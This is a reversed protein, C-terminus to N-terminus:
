QQLQRYCGIDPLTELANGHNSGPSLLRCMVWGDLRRCVVCAFRELCHYSHWWCWPKAYTLRHGDLRADADSGVGIFTEWGLALRGTGPKKYPSGGVATDEKQFRALRIGDLTAM